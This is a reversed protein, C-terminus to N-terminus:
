HQGLYFPTGQDDTCEVTLGYPQAEPDTSTGGWARIRAVASYIDDVRYMPLTTAQRHGGSLGTMPVVDVPGWGDEVRGPTFRWGLVSGYFARARSSDPVEMTVYSLDGHRDGNIPRRPVTEADPVEVVAFPVGQDDVCNAVLGYPEHSPQGGRGGAAIVRAVASSVDSVAFCLFLTSREQGGFLGHPLSQGAVQRAHGAIGGPGYSWGLVDGFFAAAREADPVWLSVYAIDGPRAGPQEEVLAAAPAAARAPVPPAAPVAAAAPLPAASSLIWRHGFPDRIVANRGYPHDTPPRELGAGAQMAREALQDVDPVSLALSVTAADGPRPAAVDSVPSEDALYFTGGGIRLESHGIRGDEMVMLQGQREAGM